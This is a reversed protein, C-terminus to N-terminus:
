NSTKFFESNDEGSDSRCYQDINRSCKVLYQGLLNQFIKGQAPDQRAAGRELNAATVAQFRLGFNQSQVGTINVENGSGSSCSAGDGSDRDDQTAARAQSLSLQKTEDRSAYCLYEESM